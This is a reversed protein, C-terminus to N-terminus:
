DNQGLRSRGGFHNWRDKIGTNRRKIQHPNLEINANLLCKFPSEDLYRKKYWSYQELLLNSEM